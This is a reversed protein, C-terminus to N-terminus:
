ATKCKVVRGGRWRGLFKLAEDVVVVPTSVIIVLCWEELRLPVLGFTRALPPVYLIIAHMGLSFLMALLLFPNTWPPMNLLSNDESLANLSNFLELAVLVSLSLTTAKVKGVTFYDCPNQFSLIHAGATFPAPHFDKWTPCEGWSRLQSLKVLTHGDSVLNIGMFSPQTYWLIFVGVTAAGVYAGIVQSIYFFLGSMYPMSRAHAFVSLMRSAELNM